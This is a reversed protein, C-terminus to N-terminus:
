GSWSVAAGVAASPARARPAPRGKGGTREARSRRRGARARRRCLERGLPPRPCPATVGETVTREAAVQACGQPQHRPRLGRRAEAPGGELGAEEVPIWAAADPSSSHGWFGPGQGAGPLQLPQREPLLSEAFTTLHLHPRKPALPGKDWRSQGRVLRSTQACVLRLASPGAIAAAAPRLPEAAAWPVDLTRPGALLQSLRSPGGSSWLIFRSLRSRAGAGSPPWGTNLAGRTVAAEPCAQGAGSPRGLPLHPLRAAPGGGRKISDHCHWCLTGM